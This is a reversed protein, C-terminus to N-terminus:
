AGVFILTLDRDASETTAAGSTGSRVKIGWPGVLEEVDQEGLNVYDGAAVTVQLENGDSDHVNQYTGSPGESAQFTLATGDFSSPMQIAALRYGKLDEVAGSLSADDSVDITATRQIRTNDM